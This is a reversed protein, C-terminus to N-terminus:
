PLNRIANVGLMELTEYETSTKSGKIRCLKMDKKMNTMRAPASFWGEWFGAM